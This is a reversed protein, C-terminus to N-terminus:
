GPARFRGRHAPAWHRHGPRGLTAGQPRPPAPGPGAGPPAVLGASTRHRGQRKLAVLLRQEGLMVYRQAAAHTPQDVGRIGIHRPTSTQTSAARATGASARSPGTTASWRPRGPPRAGRDGLDDHDAARRLRPPAPGIGTTSGRRPTRPERPQQRAAAAVALTSRVGPRRIYGPPSRRASRYRLVARDFAVQAPRAGCQAVGLGPSPPALV